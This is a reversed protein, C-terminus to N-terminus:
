EYYAELEEDKVEEGLALVFEKAYKSKRPQRKAQLIDSYRTRYIELSSGLSDGVAGLTKALGDSKFREYPDFDAYSLFYGARAAVYVAGFVGVAIRVAALREAPAVTFWYDSLWRRVTSVLTM